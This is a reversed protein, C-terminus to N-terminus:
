NKKLLSCSKACWLGVTAFSVGILGGWIAWQIIGLALSTLNMGTWGLVSIRLFMVHFAQVDAPLLLGWFHCVVFWLAGLIALTMGLHKRCLMM